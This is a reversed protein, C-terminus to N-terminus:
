TEPDASREGPNRQIQVDVRLGVLLGEGDELDIWVERTKTDYREAPSNAWVTKPGMRPSVHTVRGQYVREPLGDVTIVAPMDVEVRPAELEEVYARVRMRSTDALILAPEAADPGSMEGSEVNIELVRGAFPARLQRRRRQLRAQDVRAQAAAVRAKAIREEEERAPAELLHLRAHAAAVEAELRAVTMRHDDATQQSVVGDAHLPQTRRWTLRAQELQALRARYTASAEQREEGRAGNRLKELEAGCRMLEAEAMAEDYVHQQDDLELLLQGKEVLQGQQVHIKQVRGHQWCRIETEPRQGEVRGAAYIGDIHTTAQRRAPATSRRDIWWGFLVVSAVLILACLYRLM